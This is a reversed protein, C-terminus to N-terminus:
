QNRISINSIRFPNRKNKSCKKGTKKNIAKKFEVKTILLTKIAM